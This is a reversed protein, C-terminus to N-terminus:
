FTGASLIIEGTTSDVEVDLAGGTSLETISIEVVQSTSGTLSKQQLTLTNYEVADLADIQQQLVTEASTARVTEAALAENLVTEASTARTVEAQLAENLVTEASTARVTEASIANNLITEASTARTEEADIADSLARDGNTRASIEENITSQLITEASQARAIELGLNSEIQQTAASLETLASASAIDTEGITYTVSNDTTSTTATLTLHAANADKEVKTKAEAKAKDVQNELKSIAQNVTDTAAVATADSGKSYNNLVAESVNARTKVAVIGDTEEIAAVYQGAVATDGTVDLAAIKRDIEDKIGSVKIGNSSVTLFDAPTAQSDQESNADIKVSVVHNNVQLGDAFESEQLFSEVNVAVLEYTGDAKEYIFCLATDGTGPVVTPDTSSTLTDDVHGLYVRYLASDKYIKIVDGLTGGTSDLLKYAEKVNADGLAQIEAATLGSIKINTFIGDNGLQLVKEGSKINVKIDTTTATGTPATVVISKDENTIANSGIKNELKALATNVTDNSLISGSPTGDNSYGGLQLDKVNAKQESVVGDTEVVTIVVQGDASSATKDLADFKADIQSESIFSVVEGTSNKIFLKEDLDNVAIEGKLLKDSSPVNNATSSVLHKYRFTKAM